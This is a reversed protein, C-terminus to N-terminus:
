EIRTHEIEKGLFYSIVTRIIVVAALVLIDELTPNMISEIIDAAILIELGLLIYTALYNKIINNHKATELKPLRRAENRIFDWTAKAVGLVLIIISIANLLMVIIHVFPEFYHM